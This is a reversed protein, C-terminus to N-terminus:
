KQPIWIDIDDPSIKEYGLSNLHSSFEIYSNEFHFPHRGASNGSHETSSFIYPKHAILNGLTAVPSPLQEIVDMLWLCDFTKKHPITVYINTTNLNRKELRWKIFALSDNNIEIGMTNFDHEALEILDNGIGCGFDCIRQIRFSHLFPIAKKAYNPRQGSAAWVALTFIYNNSKKYFM